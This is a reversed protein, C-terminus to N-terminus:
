SDDRQLLSSNQAIIKRNVWDFIALVNFSAFSLNYEYRSPNFRRLIRGPLCVVRFQTKGFVLHGASLKFM